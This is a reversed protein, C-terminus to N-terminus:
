YYYLALVFLLVWGRLLLVIYYCPTLTRLYVLCLASPPPITPKTNETKIVFFLYYLSFFVFIARIYRTFNYSDIGMSQKQAGTIVIIVLFLLLLWGM